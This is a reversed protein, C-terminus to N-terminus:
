RRNFEVPKPGPKVPRVPTTRKKRADADYFHTLKKPTIRYGVTIEHAGGSGNYVGGFGMEYSYGIVFGDILEGGLGFVLANSSRYLLGFHYTDNYIATASIDIVAPINNTKQFVGFLQLQWLEDLTFR